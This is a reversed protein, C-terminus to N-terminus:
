APVHVHTFSNCWQIRSNYSPCQEYMAHDISPEKYRVVNNKNYEPPLALLLDYAYALGPLWPVPSLSFCVCPPPTEPAATWWREEPWPPLPAAPLPPWVAATPPCASFRSVSTLPSCICHIRLTYSLSFLLWATNNDADPVLYLISCLASSHHSSHTGFKVASIYPGQLQLM